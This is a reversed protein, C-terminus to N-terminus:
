KVTVPIVMGAEYHGPVHCSFEYDGAQSFTFDHTVSAGAALEDEEVETLFQSEATAGRPAVVWEHPIQAKNTIVFRYPQGVVFDTKSSEVKFDSLSVQVEEPAGGVTPAGAPGGTAGGGCGVLALALVVGLALVLLNHKM